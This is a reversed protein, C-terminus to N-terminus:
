PSPITVAGNPHAYLVYALWTPNGPDKAKIARRALYLAKGLPAKAVILHTYFEKAFEAALADNVEWLSGVFATVGANVLRRAWGGMGVLAVDSSGLSCANLFILPRGREIGAQTPGVIDSPRLRSEALILGSNDPDDKDFDGHCAFHYLRAKQAALADEVDAARELPKESLALRTPAKKLGAFYALEKKVSALNSKPAVLLASNLALSDLLRRGAVWRALYFQECLAGDAVFPDAEYPSHTHVMEWPIWPEDSIILMSLPEEGARAARITPWAAKLEPPFLEDYLYWGIKDIEKRNQETEEPSRDALSSGAMDDLQLYISDLFERPSKREPLAIRGAPTQRYGLRGSPSDLTFRLERENASMAVRLVLDPSAVAPNELMLVGMARYAKGNREGEILPQIVVGADALVPPRGRLEVEFASSLALVGGYYFDLSIRKPGPEADAEPTLLFIAPQSDRTAYVEILRTLVGTEERFGDANCVVLVEKVEERTAFDLTAQDQVRSATDAQLTFRVILPIRSDFVSVQAPFRVSTYLPVQTDGPETGTEPPPVPELGRNTTELLAGVAPHAHLTDLIRIVADVKEPSGTQGYVGRFARSNKAQDYAVTSAKVSNLFAQASAETEAEDRAQELDIGFRVMAEVSADEVEISLADWVKVLWDTLERARGLPDSFTEATTAVASSQSSAPSGIAHDIAAVIRRADQKTVQAAGRLQPRHSSELLTRVVAPLAPAQECAFLFRILAVARLTGAHWVATRLEGTVDGGAEVLLARIQRLLEQLEVQAAADLSHWTQDLKEVLDVALDVPARYSFPPDRWTM